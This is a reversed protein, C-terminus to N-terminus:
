RSLTRRWEAQQAELRRRESEERERQAELRRQEEREQAYRVRERAQEETEQLNRTIEDARRQADQQQYQERAQDYSKQREADQQQRKAAEESRRQEDLQRAEAMSAPRVGHTQYYEQLYAKEEALRREEAYQAGTKNVTYVSCMQLLMGVAVLTGVWLLIRRTSGSLGDLLPPLGGTRPAPEPFTILAGPTRSALAYGPPTAAGGGVGGVGGVGGMGAAGPMGGDLTNAKLELANARLAIAEARLLMADSRLATAEPSAGAAPSMPVLSLGSDPAKRAAQEADYAARSQPNILTHFAVRLVRGQQQVAEHGLSAEQDQLAQTLRAYAARIEADDASPQLQLLEYLTKKPAM